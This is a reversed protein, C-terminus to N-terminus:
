RPIGNSACPQLLQSLYDTTRALESMASDDNAPLRLGSTGLRTPEQAGFRFDEPSVHKAAWM